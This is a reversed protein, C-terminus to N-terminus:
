KEKGCRAKKKAPFGTKRESKRMLYDMSLGDIIWRYDM